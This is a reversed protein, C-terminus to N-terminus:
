QHKGRVERVGARRGEREAQHDPSLVALMPLVGDPCCLNAEVDMEEFSEEDSDRDVLSAGMDHQAPKAM